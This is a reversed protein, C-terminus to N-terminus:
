VTVSFIIFYKMWFATPFLVNRLGLIATQTGLWTVSTSFFATSSAVKWAPARSTYMISSGIAAAIPAPMSMELGQPLMTTSM